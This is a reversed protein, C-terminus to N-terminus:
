YHLSNHFHTVLSWTKQQSMFNKQFQTHTLLYLTFIVLVIDYQV